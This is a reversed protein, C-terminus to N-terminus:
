KLNIVEVGTWNDPIGNELFGKNKDYFLQATYDSPNQLLVTSLYKDAAEFEKSFYAIIGQNFQAKTARKRVKIVPKDGDFCEYIKLAQQKGKVQVLGLYRFNYAATNDIDDVVSSSIIISV